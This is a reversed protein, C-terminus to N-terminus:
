YTKVLHYHVNGAQKNRVISFGAPLTMGNIDTESEIYIYSEPKLFHNGALGECCAEILDSRYPPDLFVIDFAQGFPNEATVLQMADAQQITADANLLDNNQHLQQVTQSNNDVM